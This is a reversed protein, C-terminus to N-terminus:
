IVKKGLKAMRMRLATLSPDETGDGSTQGQPHAHHMPSNLCEEQEQLSLSNKHPLKSLNGHLSGDPIRKQADAQQQKVPQYVQSYPGVPHYSPNESKSSNDEDDDDGIIVLEARIIGDYESLNKNAEAEDDVHQYGMFVMTVPETDDVYCPVAQVISYRVDKDDEQPAPSTEHTHESNMLVTECRRDRTYQCSELHLQLAEKERDQTVRSKPSIHSKEEMQLPGPSLSKPLPAKPLDFSNEGSQRNGKNYISENLHNGLGNMEKKLTDERNPRCVLRDTQPTTPRCFQNAYVPEHYETPSKSNKETAKRLLDEVEVPALEDMGNHTVSGNSCMAYVSKRGDDYVKVGTEKFDDSPLPITSLVTNEGTKMDREVKIEMAFLARRNEEDDETGTHGIRKLVSPRFSKPLDPINAYIYDAQEEHVSAKEAKVSKIIDEATREVSKLKKLIAAENASIKMEEKELAEIEKELRFINQELENTREQDKLNQKQIEEQEKPTLASLGDLLWKERLAKKKLHQHKLKEEEIKLRKQTIEEQLKRKDTIAQFREKLLEAEEM